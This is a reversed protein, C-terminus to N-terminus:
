DDDWGVSGVQSGEQRDLPHLHGYLWHIVQCILCGYLVAGHVSSGRHGKELDSPVCLKAHSRNHIQRGAMHLGWCGQALLGNNINDGGEGKQGGRIALKIQKEDTAPWLRKTCSVWLPACQGRQDGWSKVESRILRLTVSISNRSFLCHLMTYLSTFPPMIRTKSQVQVGVPGYLLGVLLALYYCLVPPPTLLLNWEWTQLWELQFFFLSQCALVKVPDCILWFHYFIVGSRKGVCWSTETQQSCGASSEIGSRGAYTSSWASWAAWRTQSSCLPPCRVHGWTLSRKRAPSCWSHTSGGSSSCNSGSRLGEPCWLSRCRCAAPHTPGVVSM